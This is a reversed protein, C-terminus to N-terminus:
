SSKAAGRRTSQPLASSTINGNGEDGILVCIFGAMRRDATEVQFCLANPQSLLYSFTHKTYNEGDAFCRFNLRLVENLNDM